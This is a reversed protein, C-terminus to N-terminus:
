KLSKSKGMLHEKSNMDPRFVIIFCKPVFMCIVLAWSSSQIAFIEMAVTYKGRASLSAPIYSVWVSLFALMSFTIFKAENFSDPLRRALFAVVFSITALLGLYGLMCWFAMPSGENCEIVIIGPQTQTNYQPFPPSLSLWMICLILQLLSCVNVLTYSVRPKTWKKLSSGPKTAMFAFVVMITKALICSICITFVMGFAAQRLLCKEPQPYGIFALSSLFCLSLSILLICSLAYNNARVIPTNKYTIFISFISVPIMSSSVGTTTLAMGLPEDYSLYDISKPLCQNKQPNPWMDWPCKLCDISDTQNSIEGQACPSCQFCCIPEGKRAVKRFGPPCSESCISVPVEQGGTPWKVLSTNISFKDESSAATDYRGVKVQNIVGETTQHWNVIDYIAPPDGNEDFFVERKNNLEVRVKKFYHLLEWPNFNTITSCKELSPQGTSDKCEMLNHLARAIVHVAVYVNYSVRLSSVDNYSNQISFLSEDGTCLTGSYKSLDTVNKENPFKCGFAEAWFIKAWTLGPTSFPHISNAFEQFGQITSSHYAFGVTGTLISFYKEVSLVNSISWAESAVFLKGTVNQRLMEELIPIMYIDTSFAVIVKATSEKILKVMRKIETFILSTMIFETFAVCAGSNMIEKKIVQIGEQGYDNDPALLGIWTWQYRLVLHALGVSQFKDSPVTRFFSPFQTRDSLLSSTSFYSVQPYRYLGLLHAMSMSYTSSSHGIVAALPPNERCCYNPIAQNNGTLIWLTAEIEGQLVACSDYSYFGLTTNPLLDPNRNIEEVSFRLAQFQQYHEFLFM